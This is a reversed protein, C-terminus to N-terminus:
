RPQFTIYQRVADTSYFRSFRQNPGEIPDHMRYDSGTKSWLVVYHNIPGRDVWVIVPRGAALEADIRGWDPSGHHNGSARAGRWTLLDDVFGGSRKLYENARIPDTDIGYYRKHVMAISVVGCGYDGLTSEDSFGLKVNAWRPDCQNFYGDAGPWERSGVRDCGSRGFIGLGVLQERLQELQDQYAEERGQTSELLQQKSRRVAALEGAERRAEDELQDLRRVRATVDRQRESQRRELADLQSVLGDTKEQFIGIYSSAATMTSLSDASALVFYASARGDLYDTRVLRNLKAQAALRKRQLDGLEENVGGLESRVKDAEAAVKALYDDKAAATRDLLELEDSLTKVQAAQDSLQQQTKAYDELPGAGVFVPGGAAIAALILAPVFRLSRRRITRDPHM